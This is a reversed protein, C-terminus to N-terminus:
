ILRIFATLNLKPYFLMVSSSIHRWCIPPRCINAFDPGTFHTRDISHEINFMCKLMHFANKYQNIIKFM